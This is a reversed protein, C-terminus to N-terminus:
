RQYVLDVDGIRIKDGPHLETSRVPNGNVFTGNVSGLDEIEVNRGQCRIQAHYRSVAKSHLVVDNEPLGGIRVKAGRLPVSEGPQNGGVFVLRGAARTQQLLFWGGGLALLVGLGALWPWIPGSIDPYPVARRDSVGEINVEVTHLEGDMSAPYRVVYSRMMQRWIENFFSSLHITSTAHFFAGATENSLQQLTQLGEGGFRAYGISFIPTRASVEDGRGYEIVEELPHVSGSDRGDSFVIAFNRRPLDKGRRILDISKHVADYLVTQLGEQNVQLEDLLVKAEARAAEFGSVVRAEDSFAVVAVRDFSGLRDLFSLAAAKARDFPEGQMTRSTDIALVVAAGRGDQSLLSLAVDEPDILDGQDRIVLDVARLNDVPEGFRTEARLYLEVDREGSPAPVVDDLYLREVKRIEFAETQAGAPAAVCLCVVGALLAALVPGRTPTPLPSPNM